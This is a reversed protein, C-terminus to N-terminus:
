NGSLLSFRVVFDSTENNQTHPHNGPSFWLRLKNYLKDYLKVTRERKNDSHWM